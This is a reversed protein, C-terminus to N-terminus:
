YSLQPKGPSVGNQNYSDIQFWYTKNKDPCLISVRKVDGVQRNHYLKDKEAGYRINYGTVNDQKEWYLKTIQPNRSDRVSKFEKVPKPKRGSGLGFIRFGAIAFAGEPVHFGTIKLYRAQVPVKLAEFVNLQYDMNKTKDSLKKWNKKDDSYEILYQYALISDNHIFNRKQVAFILQFAHVSCVSGLDAMLWEGKKGSQACWFTEINEDFAATPPATPVQSSAFASAGGSLLAWESAYGLNGSLRSNSIDVPYDGFGTSTFLVGDKDFGAPFLGIADPSNRNEPNNLGAVHWWNGNKDAFTSGNGGGHVFGEPLQSFPNNTAYVFTGSPKDSVYVIDHYSNLDPDFEACQYYYKGNFTNMWSGKLSPKDTKASKVRLKYKESLPNQLKCAMPIGVPKFRDNPDLERVIVGDNNTCGYYCFVKGGPDTFVSFDRIHRFLESNTYAEWKGNLPDISRFITDCFSTAFYMQNNSVFVAPGQKEMPLNEPVVFKWNALDDSVWYGGANSAFLYYTNRFLVVSPDDLKHNDQRNFGFPFNLSLPNCYSQGLSREPGFTLLLAIILSTLVLKRNIGM